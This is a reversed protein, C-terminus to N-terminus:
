ELNRLEKSNSNNEHVGDIWHGNDVWYEYWLPHPVRAILVQLLNGDPSLVLGGVM